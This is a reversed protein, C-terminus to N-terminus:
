ARSARSDQGDQGGKSREEGREKRSTIVLSIIIDKTIVKRGM